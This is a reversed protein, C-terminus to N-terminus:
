ENRDTRYCEDTYASDRSCACGGMVPEAPSGYGHQNKGAGQQNRTTYFLIRQDPYQKLLDRVRLASDDPLLDARVYETGIANAEAEEYNRRLDYGNVAM